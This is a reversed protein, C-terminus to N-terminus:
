LCRAEVILSSAGVAAVAGFPLTAIGAVALGFKIGTCTLCKSTEGPKATSAKMACNALNIVALYLAINVQLLVDEVTDQGAGDGSALRAFGQRPDFELWATADATEGPWLAIQLGRDQQASLFAVQAAREPAAATPSALFADVTIPTQGAEIAEQLAAFSGVRSPPYDLATAIRSLIEQERGAANVALRFADAPTAGVRGDLVVDTMMAAEAITADPGPMRVTQLMAVSASIHQSSGTDALINALEDRLIASAFAVVRDSGDPDEADEVLGAVIDSLMLLQEANREAATQPAVGAYLLVNATGAALLAARVDDRETTGLMAEVEARNVLVREAERRNEGNPGYTSIQLTVLDLLPSDGEDEQDLSSIADGMLGSGTKFVGAMVNAAVDMPLTQGNLTILAQPLTDSGFVLDQGPDFPDLDDVGFAQGSPVLGFSIPRDALTSSPASLNAVPVSGFSASEAIVRVETYHLHEDPVQDNLKAYPASDLDALVANKAPDAYGWPDAPGQRFRVLAYIDPNEVTVAAPAPNLLAIAAEAAADAVAPDFIDVADDNFDLPPAVIGEAVLEDTLEQ